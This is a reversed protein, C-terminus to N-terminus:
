RIDRLVPVYQGVTILEESRLGPSEMPQQFPQRSSRRGSGSPSGRPTGISTQARAQPSRGNYERKYESAHGQPGQFASGTILNFATSDSNRETLSQYPHSLRAAVLPACEQIYTSQQRDFPFATVGRLPTGM